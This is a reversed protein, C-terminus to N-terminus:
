DVDFIIHYNEETYKSWNRLGEGNPNGSKMFNTWYNVMEESLLYDAENFPRWCKALTNFTYWLEASHFAGADDGPLERTFYYCYVDENGHLKAQEAFEGSARILSKTVFNMGMENANSGIITPIEYITGKEIAEDCTEKLVVGDVAPLFMLSSRNADKAEMRIQVEHIKVADVERAEEITEVGLEELFTEGDAFDDEITNQVAMFPTHYGGGSQMICKQFYPRALESTLLYQVSMAGASQGFLTVNSPDGGFLEINEHVWKLAAIQDLLGYNGCTGSEEKLQPHSLFGFVGLRYNITVLIVGKKCYADGDFEIENSQGHSFAGGHIWVAVPMKESSNPDKTYINLFLCDESRDSTEPNAYFEKHYFTGAVSQPQIARNRFKTCDYVKSHKDPAVPAKWRYSGTPKKAYPIGLYEYHGNIEKGKIPGYSTEIVLKDM